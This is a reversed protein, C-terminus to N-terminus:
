GSSRGGALTGKGTLSISENGQGESFGLGGETGRVTREPDCQLEQSLGALSLCSRLGGGSLPRSGEKPLLRLKQKNFVEREKNRVRM